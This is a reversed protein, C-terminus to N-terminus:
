QLNTPLSSKESQNGTKNNQTEAKFQTQYRTKLLKM